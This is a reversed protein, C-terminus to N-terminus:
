WNLLTRGLVVKWAPDPPFPKKVQTGTVTIQSPNLYARLPGALHLPLHECVPRGNLTGAYRRSLVAAKRYVALGGFASRVPILPGNRRFQWGEGILRYIGGTRLVDAPFLAYTDYYTKRLNHYGISNSAVLDWDPWSFSSALGDLSWGGRLDMDLVILIDCDTYAEGERVTELVRNRCYALRGTRSRRAMDSCLLSETLVAVRTDATAWDALIQPTRDASDNEFVVVRYDQFLRGARQIRRITLPLIDGDDRTIGCFVARHRGMRRYGARVRNRFDQPDRAQFRSEPFDVGRYQRPFLREHLTVNRKFLVLAVFLGLAVAFPNM